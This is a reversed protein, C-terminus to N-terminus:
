EAAANAAEREAREDRVRQILELLRAKRLACSAIKAEIARREVRTQEQRGLLAAYEQALRLYDAIQEERTQVFSSEKDGRRVAPMTAADARLRAASAPRGASGLSRRLFAMPSKTIERNPLQQDDRVSIIFDCDEKL